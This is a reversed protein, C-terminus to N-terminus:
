VVSRGFFIADRQDEQIDLIQCLMNIQSAKLETRNNIYNVLSTRSVGMQKAIHNKKLGSAKIAAELLKTNTM